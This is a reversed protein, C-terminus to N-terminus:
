RSQERIVEHGERALIEVAKELDHEKVLIYDTDYTSIALLPIEHGALVGALGSLIGVLSFGLSGEVRFYRWDRECQVQAPIYKQACVISLENESRTYSVFGGQAWDPVPANKNLRCVGLVEEFIKLRLKRSLNGM